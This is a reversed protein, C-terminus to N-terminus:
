LERFSDENLVRDLRGGLVDWCATLGPVCLGADEFGALRRAFDGLSVVMLVDEVFVFVTALSFISPCDDIEGLSGM